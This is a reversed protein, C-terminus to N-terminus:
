SHICARLGYARQCKEILISCTACPASNLLSQSGLRIVVLTSGRLQAPSVSRLVDAEAHVMNYPGRREVRNQGIAILRRGRFLLAVHSYVCCHKMTYRSRQPMVVADVTRSIWTPLPPNIVQPRPYRKPEM